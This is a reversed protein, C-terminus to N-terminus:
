GPCPRDPEESRIGRLQRLPRSPDAVLEELVREHQELLQEITPADFRNGDYEVLTELENGDGFFQFDLESWMM